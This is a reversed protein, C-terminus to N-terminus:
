WPHYPTSPPPPGGYQHQQPGPSGGHDHSRSSGSHLSQGGSRQQRHNEPIFVPVLPSPASVHLQPASTASPPPNQRRSALMAAARKIADTQNIMAAQQMTAMAENLQQPSFMPPGASGIMARPGTSATIPTATVTAEVSPFPQSGLQSPPASLPAADPSSILAAAAGAADPAADVAAGAHVYLPQSFPVHGLFGQQRLETVPPPRTLGTTPPPRSPKLPLRPGALPASDGHRFPPPESRAADDRRGPVPIRGLSRPPTGDDDLDMDDDTWSRRNKTHRSRRDTPIGTGTPPLPPLQQSRTPASSRARAPASTGHASPPPDEPPPGQPPPPQGAPPTWEVNPQLSPATGGAISAARQEEAPSRVM